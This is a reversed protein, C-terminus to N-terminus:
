TKQKFFDQVKQSVESPMNNAKVMWDKVGLEEGYEIDIPSSLNTLVIVPIAKLKEDKWKNKEELVEFGDKKPLLIDLLVLEPKTDKIAQLGAKGNMAVSVIFGDTELKTKYMETLDSDDEIMLITHSQNPSSM